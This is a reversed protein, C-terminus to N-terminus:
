WIAMVRAEDAGPLTHQRWPQRACFFDVSSLEALPFQDGGDTFAGPLQVTCPRRLLLIRFRPMPSSQATSRGRRPSSSTTVVSRERSFTWKRRSQCGGCLTPWRQRARPKLSRAAMPARGSAAKRESAQRCGSQIGCGAGYRPHLSEEVAQHSQGLAVPHRQRTPIHSLGRGPYVTGLAQHNGVNHQQSAHGLPPRQQAGASTWPVQNIDGSRQPSGGGLQQSKFAPRGGKAFRVLRFPM